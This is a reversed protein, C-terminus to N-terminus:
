NLFVSPQVKKTKKKRDAARHDVKMHLFPASSTPETVGRHEDDM